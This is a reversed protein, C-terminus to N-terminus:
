HDSRDAENKVDQIEGADKADRLAAIIERDPAAIVWFTFCGLVYFGLAAAVVCWFPVM